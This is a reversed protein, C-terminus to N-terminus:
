KLKLLKTKLKGSKAEHRIKTVAAPKDAFVKRLFVEVSEAGPAGTALLMIAADALAERVSKTDLSIGGTQKEAQLRDRREQQKRANYSKREDDSMESLKVTGRKVGANRQVHRRVRSAEAEDGLLESMLEVATNMELM